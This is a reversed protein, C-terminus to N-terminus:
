LCMILYKELGVEICGKSLGAWFAETWGQDIENEKEKPEWNQKKM